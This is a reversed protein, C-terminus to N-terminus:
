ALAGAGLIRRRFSESRNSYELPVDHGPYAEHVTLMQLMHRNYEELFSRVREESWDAPPPSIAYFSAAEPEM